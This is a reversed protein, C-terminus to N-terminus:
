LEAVVQSAMAEWDQAQGRERAAAVTEEPLRAAAAELPAGVLDQFWRSSAVFGSRGACAYVEVAREVDGRDALLRAAVPLGYMLPMFVGLEVGTQLAERVAQRALETTAPWTRPWGLRGPWGAGTRVTGSRRLRRRGIAPVPGAGRRAAGDPQRLALAALGQVFQAFAVTWRHAVQGAFAVVQRADALAEAYHGLHLRAEAVFPLLATCGM